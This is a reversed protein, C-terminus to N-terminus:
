GRRNGRLQFRQVSLKLNEAHNQLEQASSASEEATAANNQVVESIQRMGETVQALSQAQQRASEAIREIMETSQQGSKIVEMLAAMTDASLVAGSQVQKISKEILEAINKASETSKNALSQVEDAVVAFGKGAEGARAAEVSANLALINTQFSIDEIAKTIGGIQRSSMSIDDIASKLAEMKENCTQLHGMAGMSAQRANDADSSTNNVQRSIEKISASLEEVAAAQEVTGSSLRQAGASVIDSQEFVQAATVNIKSLASNLSDLIQGMARQIPLFEGRYDDGTTLNMNGQAMQTLKADIDGIYKKLERKTEHISHVLRGIESTDSRMRFEASLNGQSIETMQNKVSIVPRLIKLQVMLMNCLQIVGVVVLALIMEIKIYDAKQKLSEVKELTRADLAALFQEKLDNIQAISEGYRAGYVYGLAENLKGKKVNEMANEELPVLENSLAFMDDIMKQEESTIGIEQLAAVGEDRNKLNNIENWYNDYHEQKGTAAFARVENTLYASGDMFRNANYTLEYREENAEDLQSNVRGYSFLSIVLFILSVISVGNLILTLLSQSITKKM